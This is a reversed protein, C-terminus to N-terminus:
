PAGEEAAEPGNSDHAAGPRATRGVARYSVGGDLAAVESAATTGAATM